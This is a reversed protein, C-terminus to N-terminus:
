RGGSMTKLSLRTHHDPWLPLELPFHFQDLWMNATCFKWHPEAHYERAKLWDVMGDSCREDDDLRLIYRGNCLKVGIELVSEVYGKSQVKQVRCHVPLVQWDVLLRTMAQDGDALIVLESNTDEALTAMEELFPRAFDEGRTAVLISLDFNM